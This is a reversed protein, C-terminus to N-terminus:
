ICKRTKYWKGILFPLWRNICEIIPIEILVLIVGFLCGLGYQYVNIGVCKRFLYILNMHLFMIILSNRGLYILLRLNIVKCFQIVVYSGLVSNFVYLLRNNFVMTNLDVLGNMQSTIVQLVCICILLMNNIMKSHFIDFLVYGIYLYALGVFIRGFFILLLRNESTIFTSCIFLLSVIIGIVYDNKVIKKLFVFIVESFFIAPLFWLTQIGVGIVTRRFLEKVIWDNFDTVFAFVLISVFSFFFYPVLLGRVRSFIFKKIDFNGKYRLLIGSVIFFLPMHFSYIWKVLVGDRISPNFAFVHAFVVLLIGIGKAIDLYDLRKKEEM